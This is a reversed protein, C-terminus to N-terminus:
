AAVVEIDLALQMQRGCVARGFGIRGRAAAFADPQQQRVVRAHGCPDHAVQPGFAGVYPQEDQSAAGRDGAAPRPQPVWERPDFPGPLAVYTVAAAPPQAVPNQGVRRQVDGFPGDVGAPEQEVGPAHPRKRGVASADVFAAVAPRQGHEDIQLLPAARRLLGAKGRVADESGFGRGQSGFRGSRPFRLAAVTPCESFSSDDPFFSCFVARM